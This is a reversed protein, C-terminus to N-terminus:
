DLRSHFSPASSAAQRSRRRLSRALGFAVTAGALPLPGPVAMAPRANIYAYNARSSRPTQFDNQILPDNLDQFVSFVDTSDLAVAFLPGGTTAFGPYTNSGLGSGVAQAFDYALTANLPDGSFWPMRDVTFLSPEENASRNTVFIDYSNGGVSVFLAQSPLPLLAIGALVLSARLALLTTSPSPM